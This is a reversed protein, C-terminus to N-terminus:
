FFTLKANEIDNPYTPFKVKEGKNCDNTLSVLYDLFKDNLEEQNKIFKEKDEGNVQLTRSNLKKKTKATPKSIRFFCCVALHDSGFYDVLIASNLFFDPKNFWIHDILTRSGETPERNRYRAPRIILPAFTHKLMIRKFVQPADGLLDLNFDGCILATKNERTINELSTALKSRFKPPDSDKKHYIVGCVFSSAGAQIDLYISEYVNKEWSNKKEYPKVEFKENVYMAVGGTDDSRKSKPIHLKFHSIKHETELQKNSEKCPPFQTETIAIIDPLRKFRTLNIRFTIFHKPLSDINIHMISLKTLDHENDFNLEGIHTYLSFTSLEKPITITDTKTKVQLDLKSKNKSSKRINLSKLSKCIFRLSETTNTSEPDPNDLICLIDNQLIAEVENKNFTELLKTM